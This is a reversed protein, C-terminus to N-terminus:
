DTHWSMWAPHADHVYYGTGAMIHLGTRESIEVLQEVRRGFGESTLDVLGTGGMAAFRNLETVAIEPDDIILNDRLSLLNWRVFGLNEMTVMPDDPYPERPPTLWVTADVFVHEHMSTVGLTDAEIPGLVTQIPM